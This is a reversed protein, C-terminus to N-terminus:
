ESQEEASNILDIRGEGFEADDEGFGSSSGIPINPGLDIGITVKGTHVLILYPYHSRHDGHVTKAQRVYLADLDVDAFLDHSRNWCLDGISAM